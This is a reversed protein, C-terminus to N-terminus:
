KKILKKHQTPTMCKYELINDIMAFLEEGVILSNNRARKEQVLLKLRKCFEDPNSSLFITKSIGSASIM